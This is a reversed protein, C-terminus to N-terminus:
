SIIGSIRNLIFRGTKRAPLNKTINPDNHILFGNKKDGRNEGRQSKGLMGRERLNGIDNLDNGGIPILDGATLTGVAEIRSRKSGCWLTIYRKINGMVPSMARTISPIGVCIGQNFLHQVRSRFSTGQSGSTFLKILVEISEIGNRKDVRPVKRIQAHLLVHFDGPDHTLLKRLYELVTPLDQRPRRSRLPCDDAHVSERHTKLLLSRLQVDLHIGQM